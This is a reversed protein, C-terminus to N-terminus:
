PLTHRFPSAPLGDKNFLTAVPANAWAYRVSVPETVGAAQVIVTEGVLKASASHFVGDKGAVEFGIFPERAVLGGGVHDFSLTLVEGDREASKFLPGSIVGGLEYTNAKAWRALRMAVDQKNTPHVNEPTGIDITVAMGTNPLALTKLQVERLKAYGERSKDLKAEFNALQVYYFPFDGQGFKERMDKIFAPFLASYEEARAINHEGQYWIMGKIAYPILPNLMANFLCGPRHQEIVVTPNMGSTAGEEGQAAAAKKKEWLALKAPLTAQEEEWRKTIAPLIGSHAFAEPSMFTEIMKGGFSANILGIPVKLTQHLDRAFFYAVASYTGITQPSAPAWQAKVATQAKEEYAKPVRFQRIQPFNAAAIEQAANNAQDVRWEMNSQGSCLWVDGVLVDRITLTKEGSKIVLDTPEASAEMAPLDAQWRGNGDATADVKASKFSVEVKDGANAGGWVPVTKGRQLVAHDSFLASVTLEAQAVSLGGFVLFVPLIRSFFRTM